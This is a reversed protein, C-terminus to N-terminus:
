KGRTKRKAISVRFLVPVELTHEIKRDAVLQWLGANVNDSLVDATKDWLEVGIRNFTRPKGDQLYKLIVAAWHEPSQKDFTIHPQRDRTKHARTGTKPRPAREPDDDARVLHLYAAIGKREVVEGTVWTISTKM